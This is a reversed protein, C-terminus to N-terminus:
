AFDILKQVDTSAQLQAAAANKAAAAYMGEGAMDPTMASDAPINRSRIKDALRSDRLSGELVTREVAEQIKARAAGRLDDMMRSAETDLQMSFPIGDIKRLRNVEAYMEKGSDNWWDNITENLQGVDKLEELITSQEGPTTDTQAVQSVMRHNWNIKLDQLVKVAPINPSMGSQPNGPLAEGALAALRGWVEPDQGKPTWVRTMPESTFPNFIAPMGIGGTVRQNAGRFANGVVNRRGTGSILVKYPTFLGGFSRLFAPSISAITSSLIGTMTVPNYRRVNLLESMNQLGVMFSKEVTAFALTSAVEIMGSEFQAKSLEDKMFQNVLDTTVSLYTAFPEIRGYPLYIYEGPRTPDPIKFSNRPENGNTSSGTILGNVALFTASAATLNAVAMNSEMEAYRAKQAATANPNTGESIIEKVQKNFRSALPYGLPQYRFAQENADWGMRMFPMFFKLPGSEDTDVSRMMNAFWGAGEDPTPIARQFTIERASSLAYAGLESEPNIVGTRAGTQFIKNLNNSIYEGANTMLEDNDFAESFGAGYAIQNARIVKFGEDLAMLGRPGYNVYPNARARAMQWHLHTAWLKPGTVGEKKYRKLTGEFLVREYSLQTMANYLGDNTEFRRGANIPKNAKWARRMVDMGDQMAAMGGQFEGMGRVFRESFEKFGKHGRYISSAMMGIPGLTLRALSSFLAVSQTTARSLMFAYFLGSTASNWSRKQAEALTDGYIKMDTLITAPDAYALQNVVQEYLKIMNQDGNKMGETVNKWVDAQILDAFTLKGKEAKMDGSKIAAEIANTQDITKKLEDKTQLAGTVHWRTKGKGVPAMIQNTVQILQDLANAQELYDVNSNINNNIGQAARQILVGQREALIAGVQLGAEDAVRRDLLQQKYGKKNAKSSKKTRMFYPVDYTLKYFNEAFKDYEGTKLLYKNNVLFEAARSAIRIKQWRTDGIKELYETALKLGPIAEVEGLPNYADWNQAFESQASTLGDSTLPMREPPIVVKEGNKLVADVAPGDNLRVAEAILAEANIGDDSKSASAVTGATVTESPETDPTYIRSARNQVSAAVEGVPLELAEAADVIHKPAYHDFNKAGRIVNEVADPMMNFGLNQMFGVTRIFAQAGFGEGTALYEAVDQGVQPDDYVQAALESFKAALEQGFLVEDLEDQTATELLSEGARLTMVGGPLGAGGVPALAITPILM